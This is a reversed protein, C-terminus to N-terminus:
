LKKTGTSEHVCVCVCLRKSASRSSCLVCFGTAAWYFYYSQAPCPPSQTAHPAHSSTLHVTCKNHKLMKIQSFFIGNWVPQKLLYPKEVGQLKVTKGGLGGLGWEAWTAGAGPFIKKKKGEQVAKMLLLNRFFFRACDEDAYSKKEGLFIQFQDWTNQPKIWVANIGKWNRARPVWKPFTKRRSMWPFIVWFNSITLVNIDKLNCDNFEEHETTWTCCKKCMSSSWWKARSRVAEVVIAHLTMFHVVSKGPGCLISSSSLTEDLMMTTWYNVVLVSSTRMLLCNIISM